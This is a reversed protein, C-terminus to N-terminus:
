SRFIQNVPLELDFGPIPLISNISYITMKEYKKGMPNEYVEIEKDRLNVIWVVPIGAEAYIPNKIERDLELTSDSVEILLLIDSPKPHGEEYDNPVVKCLIIDPEPEDFASLSIPNQIRIWVKEEPLRYLKRNLRDVCSAHKSGIPSMRIIEGNILEVKDDPTLIGAEAMSHYEDVNLLRRILKVAM